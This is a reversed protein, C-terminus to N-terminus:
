VEMAILLEYVHESSLFGLHVCQVKRSDEVVIAECEIFEILPNVLQLSPNIIRGQDCCLLALGLYGWFAM